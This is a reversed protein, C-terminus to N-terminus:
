HCLYPDNQLLANGGQELSKKIDRRLTVPPGPLGQFDETNLCFLDPSKLELCSFAPCSLVPVTLHYGEATSHLVSGVSRLLYRFRDRSNIQSFFATCIFASFIWIVSYVSHPQRYEEFGGRVSQSLCLWLKGSNNGSPWHSGCPHPSSTVWASHCCLLEQKWWHLSVALTAELVLWPWTNWCSM